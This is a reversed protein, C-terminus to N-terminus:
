KVPAVKTISQRGTIALIGDPVVEWGQFRDSRYAEVSQRYYTIIYPVDRVLIGQMKHLIASRAAPEVTVEQETFLKDYEPNAYGSESNGTPIEKTTAIYLLSSPDVGAFWGWNIVDYDFAPCCAATLADAQLPTLEIKVGAQSWMDRLLEFVRQGDQNQDSPYSYRFKLPKKPDGPM